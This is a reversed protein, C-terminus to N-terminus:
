GQINEISRSKNMKASIPLIDANKSYSSCGCYTTSEAKILLVMSLVMNM